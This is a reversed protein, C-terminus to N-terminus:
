KGSVTIPVAVDGPGYGKLFLSGTGPRGGEVTVTVSSAGQPVVVEPMIVSEPVDTTVDLLLGGAPAPNSVTFTLSQREGPGLTLAQPSVSVNTPDIRFTGVPSNGAVGNLTVKYNRGAPMAPVFFSLSTPSEYVTRVAADDFAVTDRQTFGRGLVGVCAGVPGRTVELSLVYRHEIKSRVIGTYAESPESSGSSPIGYHVLFYYAVEDRGPPLQYDFEYVGRGISSRKMAFDQGDVIVHPDIVMDPNAGARTDVRLTFTYIESPNEPLVSPTLNTMTITGCGALLLAAAAGLPFLIKGPARSRESKTIAHFM